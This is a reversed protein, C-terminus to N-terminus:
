NGDHENETGDFLGNGFLKKLDEEVSGTIRYIGNEWKVVTGADTHLLEALEAVSFGAEMRASRVKNGRRYDETTVTTVIPEDELEKITEDVKGPIPVPLYFRRENKHAEANYGEKRELLGFRVCDACIHGVSHPTASPDLCVRGMWEQATLWERVWKDPHEAADKLIGVVVSKGAYNGVKAYPDVEEPKAPEIDEPKEYVHVPMGGPFDMGADATPISVGSLDASAFADESITPTASGNVNADSEDPTGGTLTDIYDMLKRFTDFSVGSFNMSGSVQLNTFVVNM